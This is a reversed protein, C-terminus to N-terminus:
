EAAGKAKRKLLKSILSMIPTKASPSDEWWEPIKGGITVNIPAGCKKCGKINLNGTESWQFKCSTCKMYAMM